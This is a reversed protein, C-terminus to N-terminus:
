MRSGSGHAAGYGDVDQVGDETFRFGLTKADERAAAVEVDIDFTTLAAIARDLDAERVAGAGANPGGGGCDGESRALAMMGEIADTSDAWPGAPPLEVSLLDPLLHEGLDEVPEQPGLVAALLESFNWTADLLRDSRDDDAGDDEEEDAAAVGEPVSVIGVGGGRRSWPVRIPRAGTASSAPVPHSAAPEAVEARRSRPILIPRSTADAPSTVAPPTRPPLEAAEAAPPAQYQPNTRLDQLAQPSLVPRRSGRGGTRAPTGDSDDDEMDSSNDQSSEEDDIAIPDLDADSDSDKNSDLSTRKRDARSFLGPANSAPRPLDSSSFVDDGGTFSGFSFTGATGMDEAGFLVSSSAAMRLSALLAEAALANAGRRFAIWAQIGRAAEEEGADVVEGPVQGKRWGAVAEEAEAMRAEADPGEVRGAAVCLTAARALWEEGSRPSAAIIPRLGPPSPAPSNLQLSLPTPWSPNPIPIDLHALSEAPQSLLTLARSAYIKALLRWRAVEEKEAEDEEGKEGDGEVGDKVSAAPSVGASSSAASGWAPVVGGSAFSVEDSVRGAAALAVVPMGRRLAVFALGVLAAMRARRTAPTSALANQFCHTALTLSPSLSPVTSANSASAQSGRANASRAPGAIVLKYSGLRLVRTQRSPAAAALSPLLLLYTPTLPPTTFLVLSFHPPPHSVASLQREM